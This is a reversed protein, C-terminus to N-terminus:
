NIVWAKESINFLNVTASIAMVKKLPGLKIKGEKDSILPIIKSESQRFMELHIVKLSVNVKSQPEGNKGLLYLYYDQNEKRLYLENM